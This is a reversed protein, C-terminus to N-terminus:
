AMDVPRPRILRVVGLALLALLGPAVALWSGAAAIGATAAWLISCAAEAFTAIRSSTQRRRFNSRKAQARFWIQVLTASGAAATIGLAAVLATRPAALALATLIPAVVLAVAALVAEIKARIIQGAAIPATAVLDPADEGSVALWALGGALQGSAMALVPVLIALAAIDDGYNRWLLLAPPLLYLLQMLSQSVLWPDRRLLAWEKRRLAQRTTAARFGAARPRTQKAEWGVGSAAIVHEGFRPAFQRIVLLLLLLSAGLVLALAAPDGMAARAPWWLASGADPAAAVLRDSRFMAFRSFDGYSLIAAAQLGIAFAAGVVAAVIQAILRTRKPGLTRFLVITLAIALAASVAGLAALVGYAALWRAGDLLTLVNVFPGALLMALLMTSAAIASMRIAFVRRESAPSSLILDLDARAYFARTVSEMAQSLMLSWVLLGGGTVVVLTAKDPVIGDAAAPAIVAYALLHILGAFVAIALAVVPKRMRKGATVMAVWDRWALGFEHRAFWTLTAPQSM